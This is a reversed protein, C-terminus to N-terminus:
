SGGATHTTCPCVCPYVATMGPRQRSGLAWVARQGDLSVGPGRRPTLLHPLPHRGAGELSGNGHAGKSHRSGSVLQVWLKDGGPPVGPGCRSRCGPGHVACGRGAPRQGCAAPSACLLHEPHQGQALTTISISSPVERERFPVMNEVRSGRVQRSFGFYLPVPM